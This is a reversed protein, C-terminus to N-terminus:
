DDSEENAFEALSSDVLDLTVDVGSSDGRDNVNPVCLYAATDEMQQSWTSVLREILRARSPGTFLVASPVVLLVHDVDIDEYKELTARIKRFNAGAQGRGSEYEVVVEDERDLSVVTAENGSLVSGLASSLTDNRVSIKTDAIPNGERGSEGALSAETQLIESASALVTDTFFQDYEQDSGSELYWRHAVTEAFKSKVLYHGDSEPSEGSGSQTGLATSRWEEREILSEYRSEVGAVTEADGPEVNFYRSALDTWNDRRRPHASRVDVTKANTQLSLHDRLIEVFDIGREKDNWETPVSVVLYGLNGAYLTKTWEVLTRVIDTQRLHIRPTENSLQRSYENGALDLTVIKGSLHTTRLEGARTAAVEATPEGGRLFTYNDRLVRQLLALSQGGANQEHVIVQPRRSTYPTGYKWDFFPDEFEEFDGLRSTRSDTIPAEEPEHDTDRQQTQARSSEVQTDEDEISDLSITDISSSTLQSIAVSESTRPLEISDNVSEPTRIPTVSSSTQQKVVTDSTAEIEVSPWERDGSKLPRKIDMREIQSVVVPASEPLESVVLEQERISIADVSSPEEKRLKVKTSKNPLEVPVSEDPEVHSEEGGTLSSHQDQVSTGESSKSVDAYDDDERDDALESM